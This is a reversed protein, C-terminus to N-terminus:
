PETLRMGLGTFHQHIRDLYHRKSDMKMLRTVPFDIPMMMAKMQQEYTLNRMTDDWAQAFEEDQYCMIEVGFNLKCFGRYEEATM